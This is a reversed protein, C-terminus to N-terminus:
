WQFRAVSTDPLDATVLLEDERVGDLVEVRQRNRTGIHIERLEPRGKANLVRARFLGTEGEVAQLAELPATLVDRAAATIFTVQATMQPMLEGDLNDVDFLVTYQVAKTAPAPAGAEASNPAAVQPSPLIQRIKAHWRRGDGGLTTFYLGIGTKLQRIDAESVKTWATMASLDAIRLVTPTQYTANLTQGQKVDVGLVTGAIPAYLKTYSLQAENGKLRAQSEAIQARLQKIQAQATSLGAAAIQVDEDRTAQAQALRQQRQHQQQALLYQAQQAELQARLGELAARDAEVTAQHLSADIEALLQGKKVQDGAEVHLRTIQGSVQAGVDVSERPQLTGIAIVTAEIDGRRVPETAFASTSTSPWLWVAALLVLPVALLLVRQLVNPHRM